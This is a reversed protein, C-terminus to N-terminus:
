QRPEEKILAYTAKVGEMNVAKTTTKKREDQDDKNEGNVAVGECNCRLLFFM